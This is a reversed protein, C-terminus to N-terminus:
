DVTRQKVVEFSALTPRDEKEVAIDDRGIIECQAPQEIERSSQLTADDRKVSRIQTCCGAARRSTTEEVAPRDAAFFCEFREAHPTGDDDSMGPAREYVQRECEVRPFPSRGRGTTPSNGDSMARRHAM